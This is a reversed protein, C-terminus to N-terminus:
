SVADALRCRVFDQFLVRIAVVFSNYETQFFRTTFTAIGYDFELTCAGVVPIHATVLRQFPELFPIQRTPAVGWQWFFLCHRARHGLHILNPDPITASPIAVMLIFTLIGYSKTHAIDAEPLTPSLGTIAPKALVVLHRFASRPHDTLFDQRRGMM